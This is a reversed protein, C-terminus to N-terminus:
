PEKEGDAGAGESGASASGALANRIRDGLTRMEGENEYQKSAWNWSHGDDNFRPIVHFHVHPIVQGAVSGNAQTINIGDADLGSVQAKAVEQVVVVLKRLLDAPTETIPDCHQKPIVLTHGKVIPGIDLFALVDKDEYV